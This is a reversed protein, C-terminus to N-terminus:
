DKISVNINFRTVIIEAKKFELINSFEFVCKYYGDSICDFCDYSLGETKFLYPFIHDTLFTEKQETTVIISKECENIDYVIGTKLLIYETLTMVRNNGM